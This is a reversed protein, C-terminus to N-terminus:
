AFVVASPRRPWHSTCIVARLPASTNWNECRMTMLHGHDRYVGRLRVGVRRRYPKAGMTALRESAVVSAETAATTSAGIPEDPIQVEIAIVVPAREIVRRAQRLRGLFRGVDRSVGDRGLVARAREAQHDVAQM